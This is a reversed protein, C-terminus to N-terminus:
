AGAPTRSLRQKATRLLTVARPPIAARLMWRLKSSSPVSPVMPAMGLLERLWERRGDDWAAQIDEEWKRRFIESLDEALAVEGDGRVERLLRARFRYTARWQRTPDTSHQSGHWRWNATIERTAVFPYRRALRLWIDFDTAFRESEDFGGVELLADRRVITTITPTLWDHFAARLVDSPPGEPIRGYWTGSRTGVLRAAASAAAASPNAELLSAVTALHGPEWYDDSDLWAIAEGAALQTGVNYAVSNGRNTGLRVVRVGSAEALDASGDTSGDDVVLVELPQYTQARVSALAEGLM